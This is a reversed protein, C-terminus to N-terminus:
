QAFVGTRDALHPRAEGSVTCLCEVDNRCLSFGRPKMFKRVFGWNAAKNAPSYGRNFDEKSIKGKHYQALCAGVMYGNAVQWKLFSLLTPPNIGASLGAEPQM